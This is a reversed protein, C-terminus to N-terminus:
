RREYKWMARFLLGIIPKNFVRELREERSALQEDREVLTSLALSLHAGTDALRRDFEGIQADREAITALAHRHETSLGELDADRERLTALVEAHEDGLKTLLAGRKVVSLAFDRLTVSDPYAREIAADFAALDTQAGDPQLLVQEGDLERHHRLETKIEGDLGSEPITLPLKDALSRMVSEPDELLQDYTVCLSGPPLGAAMSRSYQAYLRLGYGIPFGDRKELSNAVELPSRRIVCVTVPLQLETCVSLWFPLSLCLRPDKIAELPGEGFGQQLLGLAQEKLDAFIESSWDIDDSDSPPCFWTGDVRELLRQNLQVVNANEWFGEENVGAM